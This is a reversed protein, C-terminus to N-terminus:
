PEKLDKLADEPKKFADESVDAAIQAFDPGYVDPEVIRLVLCFPKSTGYRRYLERYKAALFRSAALNTAATQGGILFVPRGGAPGWARALVVYETKGPERRFKATGISFWLDPGQAVFPAVSVGPLIARLHAATRPNGHPGGICLETLRGIGQGIDDESVLEARAGCDKAIIVLEVIAAVDRRHVSLQHTSAMHRSVALVCDAGPGLGFFARKRALRRYAAIRQAVWVATGALVSALLNVLLDRM